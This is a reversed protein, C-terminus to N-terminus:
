RLERVLIYDQFDGFDKFCIVRGGRMDALREAVSIDGSGLGSVIRRLGAAEAMMCLQVVVRREMAKTWEKVEPFLSRDGVITPTGFYLSDCGEQPRDAYADRDPDTQVRYGLRELEATLTGSSYFPLWVQRCGALASVVEPLILEQGGRRGNRSQYGTVRVYEDPDLTMM